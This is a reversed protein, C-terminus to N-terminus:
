LDLGALAVDVQFLRASLPAISHREYIKTVGRADLLRTEDGLVAVVGADVVAGGLSVEGPGRQLADPDAELRIAAAPAADRVREPIMRPFSRGHTDDVRIAPPGAFFARRLLAATVALRAASASRGAAM